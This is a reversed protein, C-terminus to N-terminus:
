LNEHFVHRRHDSLRVNRAASSSDVIPLKMEGAFFSRRVPFFPFLFAKKHKQTTIVQKSITGLAYCEHIKYAPSIASDDYEHIKYAASVASDDDSM